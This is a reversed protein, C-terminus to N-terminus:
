IILKLQVCGCTLLAMLAKFRTVYIKCVYLSLEQETSLVAGHHEWSLWGFSWCKPWTGGQSVWNVRTYFGESSNATFMRWSYARCMIAWCVHAATPHLFRWIRIQFVSKKFIYVPSREALISAYAIWTTLNGTSLIFLHDSTNSWKEPLFLLCCKFVIYLWVYLSVRRVKSYVRSPIYFV